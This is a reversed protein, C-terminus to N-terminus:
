LQKMTLSDIWATGEIRNDFKGSKTRRIGLVVARCDSPAEFDVSVEKWFTTGAIVESQRSLNSCNHGSVNLFIGNTTTLSDTRIYGKLIYRAGPKVRVVQRVATIDPNHLGDFSIGISRSGSIRVTDDLFVDVGETERITWDFGGNLMDHEFGPNWLISSGDHKEVGELKDTVEQWAIWADDYMGKSILFNVYKIFIDKELDAFQIRKWTMKAESIRDASILYSLYGSNYVYSDPVLNRLILSNGIGLRWCLDYVTNQGPPALMIYRSLAKMAKDTENSILWFSGAEWMLGSDNPSLNVARELSRESEAPQRNARYAKSLDLWVNRQLSNRTLSERYHEIARELDPSALNKHHFRGLLYHYASNGEDYRLAALLGEEGATAMIRALLAKSLFWVVVIYFLVAASSFILAQLTKKPNKLENSM